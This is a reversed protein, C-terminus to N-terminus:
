YQDKKLRDRIARGGVIVLGAGFFITVYNIPPNIGAMIFLAGVIQVFVSAPKTLKM